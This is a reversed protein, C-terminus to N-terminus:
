TGQECSIIWPSCFRTAGFCALVPAKLRLWDCVDNLGIARALQAFLMATLHSVVSFTRSMKGIGTQNAIRHIMGLPILNLIQKLAIVNADAPKTNKM